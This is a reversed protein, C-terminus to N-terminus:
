ASSSLIRTRGCAAKSHPLKSGSKPARLTRLGETQARIKKMDNHNTQSRGSRYRRSAHKRLPRRSKETGARRLRASQPSSNVKETGCSM